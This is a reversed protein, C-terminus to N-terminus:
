EVKVDDHGVILYNGNESKTDETMPLATTQPVPKKRGTFNSMMEGGFVAQHFCFYAKYPIAVTLTYLISFYGPIFVITRNCRIGTVVKDAVYEPDLIPIMSSTAGAFMGTNIFYPMVSTVRIGDFGSYKLEANISDQLRHSASKSATYDVLNYTGFHASVSDISVLHGSNLSMMNPLFAKILWFHSLTNVAFCAKIRDDPTELLKSGNVIGANMIVMTPDGVESRVVDAMAYVKEPISVDCQYYHCTGGAIRILNATEEMNEQNLDWIVINAGLRAFRLALLRGLGFGGGTILIIEKDVEKEFFSNPIFAYVISRLIYFLCLGLHKAREMVIPDVLDYYDKVPFSLFTRSYPLDKSLSPRLFM